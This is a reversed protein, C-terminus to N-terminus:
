RHGPHDTVARAATRPVTTSSRKLSVREKGRGVIVLFLQEPSLNDVWSFLLALIRSM